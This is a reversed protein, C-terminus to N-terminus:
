LPAAEREGAEVVKDPSSTPPLHRVARVAPPLTIAIAGLACAELLLISPRVGIWDGLFGGALAGILGAAAGLVRLMAVTRGMADEAVDAVIVPGLTVNAIAGFFLPLSIGLAALTAALPLPGVALPLLLACATGAAFSTLTLLRPDRQLLRGAVASGALGMLGTAAFLLGYAATPVHVVNLLFPATLAGIGAMTAIPVIIVVMLARHFADGAFFRLGAGMGRLLGAVRPAPDRSPERSVAVAPTMSLLAAASLVYSLADVALAAGAGLVVIIPGALLRGAFGAGYQGAQLRARAKGIGEAGTLQRLHIFYIVEALITVCGSIFSLVILWPVAVANNAMGLAVVGVALASTSDLAILVRRPRAIRDAIAGAPLGFLLIPLIGAGSILGLEGPSADLHTVAIIPMAILTFVSGFASTTQGWWYLNLDRRM